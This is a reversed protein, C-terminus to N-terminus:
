CVGAPLVHRTPRLRLRALATVWIVPFVLYLLRQIWIMMGLQLANAVTGAGATLAGYLHQDVWFAVGWLVYVFQLGFFVLTLTLLIGPEYRSFVMLIPLVVVFIMLLLALFIPMGERIAMGEAAAGPAKFLLGLGALGTSLVDEAVDMGAAVLGVVPNSQEAFTEAVSPEYSLGGSSIPNGVALYRRLLLDELEATTATPYEERLIAAADYVLEDRTAM